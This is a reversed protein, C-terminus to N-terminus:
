ESKSKSQSGFLVKSRQKWMHMFMIYSGPIYLLVIFFLVFEYSFSINWENPLSISLINYKIVYPLGAFLCGLEGTIGTPYLIIFLSYRLWTLFSPVADFLNLVYFAYRPVEVLSWSTVMITFFVSSSSPPLIVALGWLAFLRSFVQTFTTFASARVIGTAAHVIELIALTQIFKLPELVTNQLTTIPQNEVYHVGILYLLYGWGLM